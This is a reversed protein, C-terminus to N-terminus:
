SPEPIGGFGEIDIDSFDVDMIDTVVNDHPKKYFEVSATPLGALHNKLRNAMPAFTALTLVGSIGAGIVPIVKSVSKAFLAKTLQVGISKAIKKSIQFIVTKTLTMQALKKEVHVAVMQAIKTLAAGAGGVGFMVGMFLTIRVLMEDDFQDENEGLIEPWGYLYVLKQLIIVVHGFFQAIDTPATAVMAFGGPLGLAASAGTVTMTEFKICGKAIQNLNKVSLGAKAPNEAIAAEVVDDDFYRSLEKRLFRERDIKVGPIGMAMRLITEFNINKGNVEQKSM